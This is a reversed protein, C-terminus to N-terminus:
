EVVVMSRYSISEATVSVFYIGPPYELTSITITGGSNSISQFIKGAPNVMTIHSKMGEPIDLILM